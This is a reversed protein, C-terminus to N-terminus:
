ADSLQLVQLGARNVLRQVEAFSMGMRHAADLMIANIHEAEHYRVSVPHRSPRGRRVTESIQDGM